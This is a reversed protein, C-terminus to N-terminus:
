EGDGEALSALLQKKDVKQNPTKPYSEVFIVDDPIHHESIGMARLDALLTYRDIPSSTIVFCAIRQGLIEDPAGIAICDSVLEHKRVDSEIAEPMVSVGGRNIQDKFRGRVAVYGDDTIYALDGTRYFGDETIAEANAEPNRYYGSLRIGGKFQFEGLEGNPLENGNADVVRMVYGPVCGQCLGQMVREDDLYTASYFGETLGYANMVKAGLVDNTDRVLDPPVESGGEIVYRLASIDDSDDVLRYAICLRAVAPALTTRTIKEKAILNLIVAPSPEPCMVLTGGSVFACITDCCMSFNVPASLVMLCRDDCTLEGLDAYCAASFLTVGPKVPIVKPVGTTGGSLLFYSISDGEEPAEPRMEDFNWTDDETEHECDALNWSADHAAATLQSELLFSKLSPCSERLEAIFGQSSEGLHEDLTILMTPEILEALAKAEEARNEARLMIPRAGIILMGFFAYAFRDSNGMRFLVADDKKLGVDLLFAAVRCSREYMQRYSIRIDGVVLAEREGYLNAWRAVAAGFTPANKFDNKWRDGNVHRLKPIVPM